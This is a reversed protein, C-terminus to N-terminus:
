LTCHFPMYGGEIFLRACFGTDGHVQEVAVILMYFSAIGQKREPSPLTNKTHPLSNNQYFVDNGRRFFLIQVMRRDSFSFDTFFLM